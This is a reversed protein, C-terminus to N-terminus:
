GEELAGVVLYNVIHAQVVARYSQTYVPRAKDGAVPFRVLANVIYRIESADFIHRNKQIVKM